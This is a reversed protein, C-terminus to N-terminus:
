EKKPEEPPAQEVFQEAPEQAVKKSVVKRDSSRKVIKRFPKQEGADGAPTMDSVKDFVTGCKSCITAGKPNLTGCSPCTMSGVKRDAEQKAVWVEFPMYAPETKLWDMFKEESYKKGLAAKAQERFGNVYEEYQRRMSAMYDDESIEEVPETMFKAGCEPCEKSKAPIWTGCESCKATDTEFETACRPCRKSSEPILAGCEGCEVMKGLGYKYLYVSFIIIVAIVIVAILIFIWFPISQPKFIEVINIPLASSYVAGTNLTVSVSHSGARDTPVFVYGSYAGNSDTKTPVPQGVPLGGADLLRITISQNALAYNGDANTIEGYVYISEGPQFETRGGASIVILPNPVNVTFNRADINNTYNSEEIVHMSNVEVVLSYVGATVNVVWPFSVQVSGGGMLDKTTTMLLTKFNDSDKVYINLIAGNAPKMGQNAMTFTIDISQGLVASSTSNTSGSPKVSVGTPYWIDARNDIVLVSNAIINNGYYTEKIPTDNGQTFPNVEVTIMRSQNHLSDQLVNAIWSTRIDATVGSELSPVFVNGIVIGTSTTGLWFRVMFNTAKSEGANMVTATLTVSEGIFVQTVVSGSSTLKFQLNTAVLDPYDLVHVVKGAQNNGKYAELFANEEDIVVTINHDGPLMNNWTMIAVGTQGSRIAPLTFNGILTRVNKFVDYFSVVASQDMNDGGNMIDARISVTSNAVPSTPDVIIHNSTIILDPVGLVTVTTQNWNNGLHLESIAELPNVTVNLVHDGVPYSATWQVKINSYDGPAISAITRDEIITGTTLDSFRVLTDYATAVGSNTVNVTLDVLDGVSPNLNSVLFPPYLEPLAYLAQFTVNSTYSNAVTNPYHLFLTSIGASNNLVNLGGSNLYVFVLNYDFAKGNWVNSSNLVDSLLPIKVFGDMGTWNFNTETKGLYNLIAQSPASAVGSQGLYYATIDTGNIYSTIGVNGVPLMKNDTVNLGMWRYIAVTPESVINLWIADFYVIGASAM